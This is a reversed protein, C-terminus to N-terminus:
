YKGFRFNNRNYKFLSNKFAIFDTFISMLIGRMGCDSIWLLGTGFDFNRKIQRTDVVNNERTNRNNM